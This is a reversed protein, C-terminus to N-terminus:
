AVTLASLGPIALSIPALVATWPTSTVSAGAAEGSSSIGVRQDGAWAGTM